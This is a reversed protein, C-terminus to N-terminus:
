GGIGLYMSNDSLSFDLSPGQISVKLFSNEVWLAGDIGPDETPFTFNHSWVLRRAGPITPHAGADILFSGNAAAGTPVIWEEVDGLLSIAPFAKQSM